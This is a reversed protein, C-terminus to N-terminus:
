RSGRKKWSKSTEPGRNKLAATIKKQAEENLFTTQFTGTSMDVVQLYVGSGYQFYPKMKEARGAAAPDTSNYTINVAPVIEKGNVYMKASYTYYTKPFLQKSEVEYALQDRAREEEERLRRQEKLKLLAADVDSLLKETEQDM